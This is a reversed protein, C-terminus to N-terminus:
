NIPTFIDLFELSVSSKELEDQCKKAEYLDNFIGFVTSGSGSMLANICHNNLIIKKVDSVEPYLKLTVDELNNCLERSVLTIDRTEFAELLKEFNPRKQIDEVKFNQFVFKTEVGVTPKVVLIYCPPMDKIPTLIDGIGEAIMTENHLCYPVDAGLKAGIKELENISFSLNFMENIAILTTACDSSGGGLGAEKPIKKDVTVDVYIEKDSAKSLAMISKYILNDEKNSIHVDSHINIEKKNNKSFTLKDCLSIKQMIMKLNHYGDERKDLVELAINIKAYANYTYSKEM